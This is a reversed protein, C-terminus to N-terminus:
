INTYTVRGTFSGLALASVFAGQGVNPTATYAGAGNATCDDSGNSRRYYVGGDACMNTPTVSSYTTQNDVTTAKCYTSHTFESVQIQTDSEVFWGKANGGLGPDKACFATESESRVLVASSNALEAAVGQRLSFIAPMAVLL